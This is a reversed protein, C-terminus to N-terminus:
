PVWTRMYVSSTVLNNPQCAAILLSMSTSRIKHFLMKLRQKTFVDGHTCFWCSLCWAAAIIILCSQLVRSGPDNKLDENQGHKTESGGTIQAGPDTALYYIPEKTRAPQTTPITNETSDYLGDQNQSVIYAAKRKYFCRWLYLVLAVAVLCSVAVTILFNQLDETTRGSPDETTTESELATTNTTKPGKGSTVSLEVTAGSCNYRGADSQSVGYIILVLDNRSNYHKDPDAIHKTTQGNHTTLIDVSQGDTDRSWTVKGNTLNGCRLVITNGEKETQHLTESIIMHVSGGLLLCFLGIREM